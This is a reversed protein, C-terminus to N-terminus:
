VLFDGGVLSRLRMKANVVSWREGIDYDALLLVWDRM